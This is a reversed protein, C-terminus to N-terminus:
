ENKKQELPQKLKDIADDIKECSECRDTLYHRKLIAYKCIIKKGQHDEHNGECFRYKLDFAFGQLLNKKFDNIITTM